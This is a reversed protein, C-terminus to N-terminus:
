IIGDRGGSESAEPGSLSSGLDIRTLADGAHGHFEGFFIRIIAAFTNSGEILSEVIPNL